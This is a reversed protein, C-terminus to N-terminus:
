KAALRNLRKSADENGLSAAKRYLREAEDFDPRVTGHGEEYIHGLRFMAKDNGKESGQRLWHMANDYDNRKLFMGGLLVMATSNGANAAQRWLREAEDEDKEVSKGTYYMEGLYIMAEDKDAEAAQKLFPLASDYDLLLYFNKGQSLALEVTTKGNKKESQSGNMLEVSVLFSGVFLVSGLLGTILRKVKSLGGIKIGMFSVDKAGVLGILMLIVSTSLMAGAFDGPIKILKLLQYLDEM